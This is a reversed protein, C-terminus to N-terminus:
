DKQGSSSLSMMPLILPRHSQVRWPLETGEWQSSHTGDGTATQNERRKGAAIVTEVDLM